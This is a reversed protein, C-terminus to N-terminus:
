GFFEDLVNVLAKLDPFRGIMELYIMAYDLCKVTRAVQKARKRYRHGALQYIAHLQNHPCPLLQMDDSSPDFGFATKIRSLTLSSHIREYHRYDSLFWAEIEMIALVFVPDIPKTPLKYRLARRLMPIDTSPLPYVDRIAIITSFGHRVLNDYNDRVDSGVREDNQSEVIQVQFEQDPGPRTSHILKITRPSKKGGAARFALIRLRRRNVMERILQEVFARETQGEVFFALKKM